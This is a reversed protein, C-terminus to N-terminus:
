REYFARRSGLLYLAVVVGVVATIAVYHAPALPGLKGAFWGILPPTIAGFIAYAINYSFSIGTFRIAPPFAAVMVSPVVGVVGV